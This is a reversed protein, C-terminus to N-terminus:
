KSSQQRIRDCGGSSVREERHSFIHKPAGMSRPEVQGLGLIVCLSHGQKSKSCDAGKKGEARENEEVRSEERSGEGMECYLTKHQPSSLM